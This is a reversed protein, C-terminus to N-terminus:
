RTSSDAESALRSFKEFTGPFEKEIWHDHAKRVFFLTFLGGFAAFLMDTQSDWVYGQTGLFNVPTEDAISAAVFEILEYFSTTALCICFSIFSIWHFNRVIRQRIFIERAIVVPLIGQVFHGLKDFNNRDQGLYDRIWDFLPMRAYTYHAGVFM